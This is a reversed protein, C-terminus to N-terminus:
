YYLCVCVALYVVGQLEQEVVSGELLVCELPLPYIRHKM